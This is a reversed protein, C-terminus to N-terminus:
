AQRMEDLRRRITSESLGCEKKVAAVKVYGGKAAQFTPTAMIKDIQAQKGAEDIEKKGERAIASQITHAHVKASDTFRSHQAILFVAGLANWISAITCEDFFTPDREDIRKALLPFLDNIPGRLNALGREVEELDRQQLRGSDIADCATRSAFDLFEVLGQKYARYFSGNATEIRAPVIEDDGSM